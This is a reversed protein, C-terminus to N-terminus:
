GFYRNVLETWKETRMFDLLAINATKRLPSKRNLAISVFYEDFTGPLVQVRGPYERKVLVKLVREDQVFADISKNAVAALGDQFTQFPIVAIGQKSLFQFADSGYISGVRVHYLDNFGRVKGKLEELTLSTTINATFSSIFVISFIMWVLAVIRGGITKPAKDGYGVTAMTM